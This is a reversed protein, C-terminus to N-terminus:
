DPLDKDMTSPVFEPETQDEDSEPAKFMNALLEAPDLDKNQYIEQLIERIIPNAILLDTLYQYDRKLVQNVRQRTAGRMLGLINMSLIRDQNAWRTAAVCMGYAYYHCGRNERFDNAVKHPCNGIDCCLSVAERLLDAEIQKGMFQDRFLFLLNLKHKLYLERPWKRPEVLLHMEEGAITVSMVNTVDKPLPGYVIYDSLRYTEEPV